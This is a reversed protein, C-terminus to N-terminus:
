IKVLDCLKFTRGRQEGDLTVAATEGYIAQITGIMGLQGSNPFQFIKNKVKKQCAVPGIVKVRDKPKLM